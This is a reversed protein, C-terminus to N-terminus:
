MGLAVMAHMGLLLGGGGVARVVASQKDAAMGEPEAATCALAVAMPEASTDFAGFMACSIWIGSWWEHVIVVRTPLGCFDGLTRTKPNPYPEIM